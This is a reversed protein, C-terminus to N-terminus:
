NMDLMWCMTQVSCPISGLRSYMSNVLYFECRTQYKTKLLGRKQKNTKQKNKTKNKNQNEIQKNTKNQKRNQKQKQLAQM